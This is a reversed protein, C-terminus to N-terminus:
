SNAKGDICENDQGERKMGVVVAAAYRDTHTLSLSLEMGAALAAARGTLYLYPKGLEDHLVQVENLSFGRIGTGVAKSFAEKAAFAAAVSQLPTGRGVLEEREEEGYWRLLFRENKMSQEMRTLEVLDIGTVLM